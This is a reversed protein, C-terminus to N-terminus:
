AAASGPLLGPPILGPEILGLAILDRLPDTVSCTGFSRFSARAAAVRDPPLGAVQAAVAAADREALLVGLEGAGAGRLAAEAALLVNLFGHQELVGDTHRVAHHLGATCKFELGRGAAGALAEALEREDPHAGPVVGGTRFKAQYRSGALADLVGARREDRPVEVYGVTDESLVDDLTNLLDKIRTGGPLTVEVAALRVGDLAAAEAVIAAVEDPHGPGTVSVVLPVGDLQAGDLLPGLGGLAAAPLVLTGVLETYGARRHGYHAPVAEALPLNGPPFVAADDLLGAFPRFADTM